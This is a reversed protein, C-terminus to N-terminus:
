PSRKEGRRFDKAGFHDFLRTEYEDDVMPELSLPRCGVFTHLPPDDLLAVEVIRDAVEQPHPHPLGEERVEALAALLAAYPGAEAGSSATSISNRAFGTDGYWGPNVLSVRIGFQQLEFRMVTTLAELAFKSASYASELFKPRIGSESSVNIISGARLKRMSPVVAQSLRWVGLVNVEFQAQVLSVPITEWPGFVGFGAANVLLDIRGCAALVAAVGNEVSVDDRLDIEVTEVGPGGAAALLNLEATASRNRGEIDRYAGFVRYGRRALAIATLRGFGSSAGTVLATKSEM